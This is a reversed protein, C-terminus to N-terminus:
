YNGASSSLNNVTFGMIQFTGGYIILTCAALAGMMLQIKALTFLPSKLTDITRRIIFGGFALGFIFASLMLEFAHTTSGLVMSLMRIWAIEYMFSATGTLAAVAAMLLFTSRTKPGNITSLLSSESLNRGDARSLLLVVGALLINVVGAFQITGPLGLQPVLCYGSLLVGIAAGLSNNFYLFALSRGPLQPFRRLIGASIFPFTSGLLISQPLILLAALTWKLLLIVNANLSPFLVDYAFSVSGTYIPHFLLAAIGIAGEILAYTSLANTVKESYRAALASGIAMGGMFITLVLTQAYASHGLFLKLYHTWISEYILGAGGSLAFIFFYLSLHKSHSNELSEFAKTSLM